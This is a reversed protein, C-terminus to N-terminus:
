QGFHLLAYSVSLQGLGLSVLDVGAIVQADALALDAPHQADMAARDTTLQAAVGGGDAVVKFLCLDTTIMSPAGGPLPSLAQEAHDDGDGAPQTLFPARLLDASEHHGQGAYADTM